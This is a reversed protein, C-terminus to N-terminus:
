EVGWKFARSEVLRGVGAFVSSTLYYLVAGLGFITFTLYTRTNIDLMTHTLDAYGIIATLSSGLFLLILQNVIAPLVNRTAPVLIVWRFRQWSTMGLSEAAEILEHSVGEIGARYIEAMYGSNNLSLAVLASALTGLDFGLSPLGFYVLYILVLLPMNRFIEVYVGALLRMWRHRSRRVFYIALGIASGIIMAIITIVVARALAALLEPLYPLIELLQSRVATM